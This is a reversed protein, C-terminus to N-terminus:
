TLAEEPWRTTSTKEFRANTPAAYCGLHGHELALGGQIPWVPSPASGLVASRAVGANAMRSAMDIRQEM